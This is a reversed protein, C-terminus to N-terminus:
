TGSATLLLAFKRRLRTKMHIIVLIIVLVCEIIHPTADM